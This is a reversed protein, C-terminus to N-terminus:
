IRTDLTKFDCTLLVQYYYLISVILITSNLKFVNYLM